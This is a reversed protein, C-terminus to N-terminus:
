PPPSSPAPRPSSSSALRAIGSRTRRGGSGPTTGAEGDRPSAGTEGAGADGNPPQFARSQTGRGHRHTTQLRPVQRTRGQRFPRHKPSPRGPQHRSSAHCAAEPGGRGGRPCGSPSVAPWRSSNRPGPPAPQQFGGRSGSRRRSAVPRVRCGPFRPGSIIPRGRCAERSSTGSGVGRPYVGCRRRRAARASPQAGATPSPDHAGTTPRPDQAEADPNGGHVGVRAKVAPNGDHVGVRAERDPNGGHAGVRAERDPGEARPKSSVADSSTRSGGRPPTAPPKPSGGLSDLLEEIRITRDLYSLRLLLLEVLVRPQSVRKLSGQAELDAAMALMRVLDAPQFDQARAELEHRYDTGADVSGGGDLSIRLLMRLTEVLGHYFEVLDYGEDVLSEVFAFIDRHRHSLIIDFLELYREEEVLGLVERVSRSEVEGGTLALVQDLLSLADRMGGDAKRAIIRLADASAEAGESGIVQELRSAIDVVGVRRFDFRQCRSLIPSASQQIRQPETTAFIFMVRPPPEELIKLLANWAERTLM